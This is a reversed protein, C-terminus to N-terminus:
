FDVLEDLYDPELGFHDYCIDYALHLNELGGSNLIEELEAKAESKLAEAESRSIGDRKMLTEVIPKRQWM